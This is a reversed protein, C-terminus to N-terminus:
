SALHLIPKSTGEHPPPVMRPPVMRPPVMPKRVLERTIYAMLQKQEILSALTQIYPTAPPLMWYAFALSPTILESKYPPVIVLTCHPPHTLSPLIQDSPSHWYGIIQLRPLQSLTTIMTNSLQNWGLSSGKRGKGGEPIKPKFINHISGVFFKRSLLQHSAQFGSGMWVSWQLDQWARMQIHCSRSPWGDVNSWRPFGCPVSTYIYSLSYILCSAYLVFQMYSLSYTLCVTHLILQGSGGTGIQHLCIRRYRGLTMM